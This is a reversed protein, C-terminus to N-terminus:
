GGPVHETSSGRKMRLLLTSSHGVLVWFIKALNKLSGIAERESLAVRQLSSISHVYIMCEIILILAARLPKEKM